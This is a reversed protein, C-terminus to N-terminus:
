YIRTMLCLDQIILTIELHLHFLCGSTDQMPGYQDIEITLVLHSLDFLGFRAHNDVPWGIPENVAQTSTSTNDVSCANKHQNEYM